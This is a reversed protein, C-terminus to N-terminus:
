SPAHHQESSLQFNSAHCYVTKGNPRRISISPPSHPFASHEGEIVVVIEGEQLHHSNSRNITRLLEGTSFPKHM